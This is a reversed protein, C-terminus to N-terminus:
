EEDGSGREANVRLIGVMMKPVVVARPEHVVRHVWRWKGLLAHAGRKAGPVEGGGAFAAVGDEGMEGGLRGGAAGARRRAHCYGSSFPGSLTAQRISRIRGM